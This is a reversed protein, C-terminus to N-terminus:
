CFSFIELYDRYCDGSISVSEAVATLVSAAAESSPKVAITKRSSNRIALHFHCTKKASRMGIRSKPMKGPIWCFLKISANSFPKPFVKPEIPTTITSPEIM